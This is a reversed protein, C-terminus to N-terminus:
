LKYVIFKPRDSYISGRKDLLDVAARYSDLNIMTRGLVELHIVEGSFLNLILSAHLPM